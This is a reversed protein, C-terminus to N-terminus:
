QTRYMFLFLVKLAAASIGESGLPIANFVRVEHSGGAIISEGEETLVWKETMISEYSLIERSQLANLVGLIELQDVLNGNIRLEATDSICGTAELQALIQQQIEEKSM